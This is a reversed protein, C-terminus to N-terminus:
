KLHPKRSKKTIAATVKSIMRNLNFQDYYLLKLMDEPAIVGLLRSADIDMFHGVQM